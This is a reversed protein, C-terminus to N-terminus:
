SCYAGVVAIGVALSFEHWDQDTRYLDQGCVSMLYLSDALPLLCHEPLM